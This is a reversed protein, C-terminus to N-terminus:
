LFSKACKTCHYGRGDYMALLRCHIIEIKSAVGSSIRRGIQSSVTTSISYGMCWNSAKNLWQCFDGVFPIFTLLILCWHLLWCPIYGIVGLKRRGYVVPMIFLSVTFMYAIVAPVLLIKLVIKLINIM